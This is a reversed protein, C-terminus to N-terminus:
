GGQCIGPDRLRRALLSIASAGLYAETKGGGTPFFILDVLPREKQTPVVLEPLCALIFAIQFPRWNGDGPKITAEPHPEVPRLVNDQGREVSRLPLRSRVQQYLMAENALQFARQAVPNSNVQAWGTQMRTLAKRCHQMHREAALRFRTPLTPIEAERDAIWEEYLRLVTGVQDRGAQSDKSLEEMSVTVPM